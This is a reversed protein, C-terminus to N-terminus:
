NKLCNRNGNVTLAARIANESIDPLFREQIDACVELVRWELMISGKDLVKDIDDNYRFRGKYDEHRDLVRMANAIDLLAFGDRWRLNQKAWVRDPNDDERQAPPQAGAPQQTRRRNLEAATQEVAEVQKESLM